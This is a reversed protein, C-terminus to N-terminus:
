SGQGNPYVIGHDSVRHGEIGPMDGSKEEGIGKCRLRKPFCSHLGDHFANRDGAKEAESIPMCADGHDPHVRIM